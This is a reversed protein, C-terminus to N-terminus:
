QAAGTTPGAPMTTAGPQTASGRTAATAQRQKELASVAMKLNDNAEQYDPQIQTAAKFMQVAMGMDGGRAYLVGLKNWVEPRSHDQQLVSTYQLKAEKDQNTRALLDALNERAVINDPKIKLAERNEGIARQLNNLGAYAEAMLRHTPSSQPQVRLAADCAEIAEQWHQQKVLTAALDQWAGSLKPDLQTAQRLHDVAAPYDRREILVRGIIWQAEGDKPNLEAAAKAQKMAETLHAEYADTDGIRQDVASQVGLASGYRDHAFWSGPNKSVTDAWLNLDSIFVHARVWSTAGLAVLLIAALAIAPGPPASAARARRLAKVAAAVILTILPVTALYAYHDAVFTFRMPAINVFGLAPLLCLVFALVAVIPGRGFRRQVVLLWIITVVAAAAPLYQMVNAPDIAWKPYMFSLRTPVLLKGVYFWVAQGAIIARQAISWDWGAGATSATDREFDMASLALATGIVVFPSLLIVQRGSLRRKWWLLLMMVLPMAFASSKSLMALVFLLMSAAYSGWERAPDVAEGAHAREEEEA